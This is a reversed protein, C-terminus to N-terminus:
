LKKPGHCTMAKRTSTARKFEKSHLRNFFSQKFVQLDEHRERAAADPVRMERFIYHLLAQNFRQSRGFLRGLLFVGHRPKVADQATRNNVEVATVVRAVSRQLPKLLFQGIRWASALFPQKTLAELTQQGVHGLLIAVQQLTNVEISIIHARNRCFQTQVLVVEGDPQVAGAFIQTFLDRAIAPRTAFVSAQIAGASLQLQRSMRTSLRPAGNRSKVQTMKHLAIKERGTFKETQDQLLLAYASAKKMETVFSVDLAM